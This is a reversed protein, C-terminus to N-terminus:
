KLSELLDVSIWSNRHGALLEVEKLGAFENLMDKDNRHKRYHEIKYKPVSRNDQVRSLEGDILYYKDDCNMCWLGDSYDFMASDDTHKAGCVVCIKTM